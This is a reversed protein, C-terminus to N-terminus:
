EIAFGSDAAGRDDGDDWEIEFEVSLEDPGSGTEREAKVEFTASAPVSMSVSEGSGALTLEGGADLKAAVERLHAAIESHDQRTESKFLVEEPMGFYEGLLPLFYDAPAVVSGVRGRCVRRLHATIAVPGRSRAELM